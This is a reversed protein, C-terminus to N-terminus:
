GGNINYSTVEQISTADSTSTADRTAMKYKMLQITIPVSKARTGYLFQSPSVRIKRIMYVNSSALIYLIIM